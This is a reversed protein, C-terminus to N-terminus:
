PLKTAHETVAKTDVTAAINVGCDCIYVGIRPEDMEPTGDVVEHTHEETM